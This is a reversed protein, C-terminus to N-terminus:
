SAVPGVPVLQDAVPGGLRTIVSPISGGEAVIIIFLLSFYYIGKNDTESMTLSFNDKTVCDSDTFLVQTNRIM